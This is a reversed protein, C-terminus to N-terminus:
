RAAFTTLAFLDVLSCKGNKWIMRLARCSSDVFFNLHVEGNAQSLVCLVSSLEKGLVWSPLRHNRFLRATKDPDSDVFLGRWDSEHEGLDMGVLQYGLVITSLHIEEVSFTISTDELRMVRGQPQTEVRCKDKMLRVLPLAITANVSLVSAFTIGTELTM